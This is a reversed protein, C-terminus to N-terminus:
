GIRLQGEVNEASRRARIVSDRADQYAAREDAPLAEGADDASKNLAKALADLDMPEAQEVKKGVSM